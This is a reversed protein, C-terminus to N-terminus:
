TSRRRGRKGCPRRVVLGRRVRVPVVDILHGHRRGVLFAVRIDLGHPHRHGINRASSGTIPVDTQHSLSCRVSPRTSINRLTLPARHAVIEPIIPVRGDRAPLQPKM